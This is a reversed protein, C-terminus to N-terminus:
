ITGLVPRIVITGPEDKVRAQCALRHNPLNGLLELLESEAAEPPELLDQGETVHIHCTGCSASRCSFPIPALYQDCIDLLEGGDTEVTKEHGIRTAIFVIRPM